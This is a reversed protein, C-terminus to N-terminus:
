ALAALQSALLFHSVHETDATENPAGKELCPALEHNYVMNPWRAKDMDIRRIDKRRADPSNASSLM